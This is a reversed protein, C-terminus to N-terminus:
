EFNLRAPQRDRGRPVGAPRDGVPLRPLVGTGGHRNRDERGVALGAPHRLGRHHRLRAPLPHPRDRRHLAGAGGGGPGPRAPPRRSRDLVLLDGDGGGRGRLDLVARAPRAPRHLPLLHRAPRALGDARRLPRHEACEPLAPVARLRRHHRVRHVPRGAVRQQDVGARHVVVAPPELLLERLGAGRVAQPVRGRWLPCACRPTHLAWYGYLLAVIATAVAVVLSTWRIRYLAAPLQSGFFSPLQSLVNSGAGTFRLRTRSLSVSLWDGQM